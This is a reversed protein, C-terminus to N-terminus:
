MSERMEHSLCGKLIVSLISRFLRDVSYDLTTLVKEQTIQRIAGIVIHTVLLTDMGPDYLGSKKGEDLLARLNTLVIQQRRQEIKAYLEPMTREIQM